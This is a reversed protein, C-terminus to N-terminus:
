RSFSININRAEDQHLFRVSRTSNANVDNASGCCWWHPQTSRSPKKPSAATPEVTDAAKKSNDYTSHGKTHTLNILLKQDWENDEESTSGMNRESSLRVSNSTNKQKNGANESKITDTSLPTSERTLDDSVRPVHTPDTAM